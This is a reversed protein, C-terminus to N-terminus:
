VECIWINDAGVSYFYYVSVLYLESTILYQISVTNNISSFANSQYGEWLCIYELMKQIEYQLQLILKINLTSESSYLNHLM